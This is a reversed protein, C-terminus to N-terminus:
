LLGQRPELHCLRMPLRRDSRSITGSALESDDDFVRNHAPKKSSQWGQLLRRDIAAIPVALVIEAGVNAFIAARLVGLRLNSPLSSKTAFQASQQQEIMGVAPSLEFFAAWYSSFFFERSRSYM